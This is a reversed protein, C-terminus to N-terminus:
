EKIFNIKRGNLLFYPPAFGPMLTARLHREIKEKDWGLDIQKMRDIDKRYITQSGKIPELDIQPTLSYNGSLISGIKANFLEKAHTYAIDVLEDVFCNEPIEFRDEFIIDGTDIGTDMKHLTCGFETRGDIIAMSFQNCGRYEPLPAIHLNIALEKACALHKAKLIEHYQVSIIYDFPPLDLISDINNYVTINNDVACDILKNNATANRDLSTFLAAVVCGAAEQMALLTKLCELGISKAGLFAIRKLM